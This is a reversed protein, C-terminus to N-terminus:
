LRGNLLINAVQAAITRGREKLRDQSLSGVPHPVVVFPYDPLGRLRAVTKSLDVFASTSIYAAPIGKEEFTIADHM